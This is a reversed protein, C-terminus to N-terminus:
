KNPNKRTRRCTRVRTKKGCESSHTKIRRCITTYPDKFDTDLACRMRWLWALTQQRNESTPHTEAAAKAWLAGLTPGLVSPLIEWFADFKKQREKVSLINWKNKEDLDNCTYAAEPCDPMPKSHKATQKPHNYAVAFLFDWFTTLHCSISQGDKLWKKYFRNVDAFPPDPSPNLNQARLKLNVQNHIRWLWKRFAAGSKLAPEPLDERMYCTLSYRCFKCPLIFPIIQLFQAVTKHDTQTPEEPYVYSIYHLM